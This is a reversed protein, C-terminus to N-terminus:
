STEPILYLTDSDKNTIAQYAAESACQVVKKYDSPVSQLASDAKGLSTQVASAMDSSPIGGSPKVYGADDGKAWAGSVVKLVKGNDSGTVAPLESWGSKLLTKTTGNVSLPVTNGSESGWTVVAGAGGGGGASGGASSGASGYGGDNYETSGTTTPATDDSWLQYFYLFEHFVASALRGTFMDLTGGKLLFKHGKYSFSCNFYVRGNSAVGCNGSLVQAAGYRYALLQQHIMAPFPIQASSGHWNGLYGYPHYQGGSDEYYLANKYTENTAIPVDLSLASFRPKRTVAVNYDENSITTLKNSKLLSTNLTISIDSLRAYLGYDLPLSYNPDPLPDSSYHIDVFQVVINGGVGLDCEILPIDVEYQAKKEDAPTYELTHVSSSWAGGDWYRTTAGYLYLVRVKLKDLFYNYKPMGLWGAAPREIPNLFVLHLTVGSSYVNFRYKQVTSPTQQNAILLPYKTGADAGESLLLTYTLQYASADLFGYGTEWGHGANSNHDSKGTQTLQGLQWTYDETLGDFSLGKKVGPRIVERFDYEVDEQISKVAPDYERTGGYFELAAQSTAANRGFLPMNRLPAVCFTNADIFRLTYGIGELTEELVSYWDEGEFLSANIYADLPSVGDYEFHNPYSAGSDADNFSLTMPFEVKNKAATILDRICVLGRADPTMDFTFDQLHGWNDRATFTLPARYDLGEQWSDPTIYGTWFITAVDSVVRAISVKYLTEDPTYFESFDGYKVYATDTMDSADIVTFRLQTKVIPATIDDQSGQIELVCGALFAIRKRGGSWARQEIMLRYDEGRVNRFEAYYKEAYGAM